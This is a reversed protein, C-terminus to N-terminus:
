ASNAMLSKSSVKMALIQPEGDSSAVIGSYGPDNEDIDQLLLGM